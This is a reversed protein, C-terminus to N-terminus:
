KFLNAIHETATLISLINAAIQILQTFVVVWM